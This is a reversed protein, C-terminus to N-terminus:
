HAVPAFHNPLHLDRRLAIIGYRFTMAGDAGFRLSSSYLGKGVDASVQRILADNAGYTAVRASRCFFADPTTVRDDFTWGFWGALHNLPHELEGNTRDALRAEIAPWTCLVVGGPQLHNRVTENFFQYLFSQRPERHDARDGDFLASFMPSKPTPQTSPAFFSPPNTTMFDFKEGALADMGLLRLEPIPLTPSLAPLVRLHRRRAAEIADASIDIGVVRTLGAAALAAAHIGNGTGIDIGSRLRLKTHRLFSVITEALDASMTTVPFEDLRTPHELFDTRYAEVVNV